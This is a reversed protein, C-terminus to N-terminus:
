RQPNHTYRSMGLRTPRPCIGCPQPAGLVDLVNGEADASQSAHNWEVVNTRVTGRKAGQDKIGPSIQPVWCGDASVARIILSGADVSCSIAVAPSFGGILINSASQRSLLLSDNRPTFKFNQMEPSMSVRRLSTLNVCLM